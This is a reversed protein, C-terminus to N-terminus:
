RIRGTSSAPQPASFCASAPPVDKIKSPGHGNKGLHRGLLAIVFQERVPCLVAITQLLQPVTRIRSASMASSSSASWSWSITVMMGIMGPGFGPQSLEASGLSPLALKPGALHSTM